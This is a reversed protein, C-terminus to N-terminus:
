GVEVLSSRTSDLGVEPRVPWRRRVMNLVPEALAQARAALPDLGPDRVETVAKRLDVDVTLGGVDQALIELFQGRRSRRGGGSKQRSM